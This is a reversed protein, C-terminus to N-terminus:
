SLFAPYLAGLRMVGRRPVLGEVPLHSALYADYPLFSVNIVLLIGSAVLPVLDQLVFLGELPNVALRPPPSYQQRPPEASAVASYVIHFHLGYHVYKHFQHRHM